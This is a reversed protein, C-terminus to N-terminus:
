SNTDATRNADTNSPALSVRMERLLQGSIEIKASMRYSTNQTYIGDPQQTITMLAGNPKTIQEYDLDDNAIQGLVTRYTNLCQRVFLQHQKTQLVGIAILALSYIRGRRRLILNDSFEVRPVGDDSAYLLRNRLNAEDKVHQGISGAGNDEALAQLQKEFSYAKSGQSLLYNFPQDPEGFLPEKSGTFAAVDILLKLAPREGRVVMLKPTPMKTAALMDGVADLFPSIAAKHVHHLPNLKDAGDYQQQKLALILATAAEEEATIARFLSMESDIPHLTWSRRLHSFASRFCHGIRGGFKKVCEEAILHHEEMPLEASRASKHESDVDVISESNPKEGEAVM